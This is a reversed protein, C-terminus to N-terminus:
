GTSSPSGAARLEIRDRGGAKAAYLAADAAQALRRADEGPLLEAVGASFTVRFPHRGILTLEGFGERLLDLRRKADAARTRPMLVAFEEGGYRGVLDTRRLQQQLMRAMSKLVRDGVAHGHTDNVSKFHDLDIMAFSLPAGDRQARAVETRLHEQVMAHNLVGTLSDRIMLTRLQRARRARAQVQDALEALSIPKVLYADAGLDLAHRRAGTEADGTLFVIPLALLGDFQRLVAALEFGSCGPMMVDTVVLDPNFDRIADLALAPDTVLRAVMGRRELGLVYGAGLLRDDDVVLIRFPVPEARGTLVDLQDVLQAIDPPKAVYGAGGARVAQLRAQFDGRASLFIAPPAGGDESALASVTDPGALLDGGCAVDVLLVDPRGERVAAAFPAPELYPTVEYGYPRLQSALWGAQEADDELLYIRQGRDGRPGEAEPPLPGSRVAEEAVARLRALGEALVPGADQGDLRARAAAEVARAVDTLADIGFTGGSGALSHALRVLEAAGGPAAAAAEMTAIRAPLQELFAARIAAIKAQLDDPGADNAM